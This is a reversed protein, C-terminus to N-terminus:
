KGGISNILSLVIIIAPLLLLLTFKMLIFTDKVNLNNIYIIHILNLVISILPLVCLLITYIIAIPLQEM